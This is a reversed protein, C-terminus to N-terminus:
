TCYYENQEHLESLQQLEIIDDQWKDSDVIVRIRSANRPIYEEQTYKLIAESQPQNLQEFEQHTPVLQKIQM